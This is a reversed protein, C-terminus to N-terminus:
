SEDDALLALASAPDDVTMGDAGTSIVHKMEDLCGVGWARIGLGRAHVADVQERTIEAARYAVSSFGARLARDIEGSARPVRTRLLRRPLWRGKVRQRVLWCRAVRPALDGARVLREFRFSTLTVRSALDFQRISEAVTPVLEPEGSKLEVHYHFRDGFRRFLDDLRILGTGQFRQGGGKRKRDFWSGIDMERLQAESYDKVQGRAGTKRALRHDHFLMPAGDRSLQVDLEVAPTSLEAARLFAPLTNEPAEASAGRHAIVQFSRVPPAGPSRAEM